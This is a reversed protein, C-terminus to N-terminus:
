QHIRRHHHRVTHDTDTEFIVDFTSKMKTLPSTLLASLGLIQLHFEKVQDVFTVSEVDVGLDNVKFGSSDAIM